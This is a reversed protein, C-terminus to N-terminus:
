EDGSGLARRVSRSAAEANAEARVVRADDPTAGLNIRVLHAAARAGAEALLAGAVADGRVQPNGKEALNAALDAVDAGVETIALPIAAARELAVGLTANRVEPELLEPLRFAALASEYAEADAQALPEIRARLTEAQATAGRAEAWRDRSNRACMATLSAGMAVAIAAASGGAPSQVESAIHGLVDGLPASLMDEQSSM